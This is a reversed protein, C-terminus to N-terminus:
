SQIARASFQEFGRARLICAPCVGCGYGWAHLHERNGEYCTHSEVRVLEVFDKGGEVFAMHWTDAKHLWMLPSHLITNTDMGINIAIQMAKVADDRCDPYGSSDTECVGLVIHQCAQKWALAAAATIFFLNRGPVFTNPVASTDKAEGTNSCSSNNLGMSIPADGVLANEGIQRFIDLSVITDQQLRQAWEARMTPLKQLITERCVMEIHHRQGYDFGITYVADYRNLAWALCITSDQGGSFLVLASKKNLTNNSM